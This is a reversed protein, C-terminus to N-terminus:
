SEKEKNKKKQCVDDDIIINAEKALHYISNKKRWFYIGKKHLKLVINTKRM